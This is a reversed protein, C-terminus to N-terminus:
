LQDVCNPSSDNGIEIDEVPAISFPVTPEAEAGGLLRVNDIYWNGPTTVGGMNSSFFIQMWDSAGPDYGSIDWTLTRTQDGSGPNFTGPYSPNCPDTPALQFWGADSNVALEKFNAWADTATWESDIFTVDAVVADYVQPNVEVMVAWTWGTPPTIALSGSGTTAGIDSVAVTAPSDSPPAFGDLSDDEFDGIVSDAYSTCAVSLVFVFVLYFLKKFM